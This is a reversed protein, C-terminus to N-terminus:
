KMGPYRTKIIPVESPLPPKTAQKTKHFMHIVVTNRFVGEQGMVRSLPKTSFLLTLYLDRGASSEGGGSQLEELVLM